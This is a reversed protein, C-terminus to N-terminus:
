SHGGQRRSALEMELASLQALWGVHHRAHQRGLLLLQDARFRDETTRRRELENKPQGPCRARFGRRGHREERGRTRGSRHVRATRWGNRLSCQWGALCIGGPGPSAM